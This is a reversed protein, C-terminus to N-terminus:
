LGINEMEEDIKEQAYRAAKDGATYIPRGFHGKRGVKINEVLQEGPSENGRVKRVIERPGQHLNEDQLEQKIEEPDLEYAKDTIGEKLEEPRLNHEKSLKSNKISRYTDQLTGKGNISHKKLAMEFDYPYTEGNSKVAINHDVDWDGLLAKVSLSEILSERDIEEPRFHQPNKVPEEQSYSHVTNEDRDYELEPFPSIQKSVLDLVEYLEQQPESVARSYRNEGTEEVDYVM